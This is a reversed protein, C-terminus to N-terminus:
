QRSIRSRWRGHPMPSCSTSCRARRRQTLSWLPSIHTRRSPMACVISCRASGMYTLSGLFRANDSAKLNSELKQRLGTLAVQEQQTPFRIPEVIEQMEIDIRLHWTYVDHEACGDLARNIMWAAPKGESEFQIIACRENPDNPRSTSARRRRSFPWIVTSVESPFRRRAERTRSEVREPGGM